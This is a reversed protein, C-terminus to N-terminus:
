LYGYKSMKELDLNFENALLQNEASFHNKIRLTVEPTFFLIKKGSTIIKEGYRADIFKYLKKFISLRGLTRIIKIILNSSYYYDQEFFFSITYAQTNYGKIDRLKTNIKVKLSSSVVSQEIKFFNSLEKVYTVRNSELDEFFLIKINDIGFHKKYERLIKTYYFMQFAENESNGIGNEVYKDITNVSEDHRFHWTYAETYFSHILDVQNRLSVLIFVKYDPFYKEFYLKIKKAALLPNQRENDLLSITLEEYSIVNPIDSLMTLKETPICSDNLICEIFTSTSNNKGIDISRKGLYNIKGENHQNSFLNNQLASTATKPYGIHIYVTKM